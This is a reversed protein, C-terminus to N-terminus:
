SSPRRHVCLVARLYLCTICSEAGKHAGVVCTPACKICPTSLICHLAPRVRVDCDSRMSCRRPPINWRRSVEPASIYRVIYWCRSTSHPTCSEDAPIINRMFTWTNLFSAAYLVTWENAADGPQLQMGAGDRGGVERVRFM